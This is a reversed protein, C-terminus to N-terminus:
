TSFNMDFLYFVGYEPFLCGRFRFFLAQMGYKKLLFFARVRLRPAKGGFPNCKSTEATYKIFFYETRVSGRGCVAM